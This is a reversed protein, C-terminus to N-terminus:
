RILGAQKLFDYKKELDPTYIHYFGSFVDPNGRIMEFIENKEESPIRDFVDWLLNSVLEESFRLKDRYERYLPSLSLPALLFLSVSSGMDAVDGMVYVTQFFDGMTEFPFGWMFTSITDMYQVSLNIIKRVQSVSIQKGMMKLVRESGSEVGYQVATCGSSAMKSILEEDMLNIRGNCMWTIGMKEAKLADCFDLVWKRNLVFTDDNIHLKKVGCEHLMKIEAMM